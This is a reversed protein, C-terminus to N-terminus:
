YMMSGWIHFLGSARAIKGSEALAQVREQSTAARDIPTTTPLVADFVATDYGSQECERRTQEYDEGLRKTLITQNTEEDQGIEHRVKTNNLCGKTFPNFGLKRLAQDIKAKPIVTPLIM